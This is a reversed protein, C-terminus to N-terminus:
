PSMKQLWIEYKFTLVLTLLGIFFIIVILVTYMNYHLKHSLLLYTNMEVVIEYRCFEVFIWRMGNIINYMYTKWVVKTVSFIQTTVTKRPHRYVSKFYNLTEPNHVEEGKHNNYFVHHSVKCKKWYNFFHKACPLYKELSRKKVYLKVIRTSKLDSIALFRFFGYCKSDIFIM